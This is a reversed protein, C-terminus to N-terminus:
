GAMAGSEYAASLCERLANTEEAWYRESGFDAFVRPFIPDEWREAIWASFRIMRLGRLLEVFRLERRDFDRFQEYGGILLERAEVSKPDRGPVLLWLDQVAPAEAMDDLDVVWPEDQDWLLNGHHFDGHVRQFTVTSFAESAAAVISEATRFYADRCAASVMDSDNLIGLPRNGYSEHDLRPRHHLRGRGGVEHIRAVLRGVQELLAGSIEDLIRGGVRRYMCWLIDGAAAAGLTDGSPLEVPGVVPLGSEVLEALFDHEERIEAEGWRGPRYFKVVRFEASERDASEIEVQYVRNELSNLALCRGTPRLGASEVADLICDPTLEYFFRTPEGSAAGTM